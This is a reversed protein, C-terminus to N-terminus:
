RKTHGWTEELNAYLKRSVSIVDDEIQELISGPFLSPKVPITLMTMADRLMLTELRDLAVTKWWDGGWKGHHWLDAIRLTLREAMEKGQSPQWTNPMKSRMEEDLHSLADLACTAERETLELAAVTGENM